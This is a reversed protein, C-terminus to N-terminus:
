VDLAHSEGHPFQPRVLTDERYVNPRTFEAEDDKVARVSKQIPTLPVEAPAYVGNPKGRHYFDSTKEVFVRRIDNHELLTRVASSAVQAFAREPLCLRSM